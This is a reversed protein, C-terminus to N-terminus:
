LVQAIKIQSGQTIWQIIFNEFGGRGVIKGCSTQKMRYVSNDASVLLCSNLANKERKTRCIVEHRNVLGVGQECVNMEESHGGCSSRLAECISLSIKM